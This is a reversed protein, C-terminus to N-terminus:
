EIGTKPIPSAKAGYERILEDYARIKEHLRDEFEDFRYMSDENATLGKFEFVYSMPPHNLDHISINRLQDSSDYILRVRIYEESNKEWKEFVLKSGIPTNREISEPLVYDKVDLAALVSAINSDHGCLFSFLRENNELERDIEQLLPHAVNVAVLPATFLVDTYTDKINSIAKWQESDLDHGFAAAVGDSEEYYQLVLADSLSCATKLSGKMGPEANTEMVFEIDDNNFDNISGNKYAESDKLGIVNSLLEYEKSLDPILEYMQKKADEVYRDTVFTLQPTFVPDMKDYEQNTTIKINAVPLFGSSFYQATAITRQKANAYFRVENGQPRYNEPILGEEALWKRFYQGMSTELMGGRLSLESAESSWAYWTYPTATDLASGKTSLPARINHRSLVVVEKLRYEDSLTEDAKLSVSGGVLMLLIAFVAFFRSTISRATKMYAKKM